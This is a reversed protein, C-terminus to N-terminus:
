GRRPPSGLTSWIPIGLFRFRATSGSHEAAEWRSFGTGLIHLSSEGPGTTHDLLVGFPLVHVSRGGVEDKTVSAGIGWLVSM